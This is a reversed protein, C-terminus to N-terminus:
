SINKLKMMDNEAKQIEAQCGKVIIWYIKIEKHLRRLEHKAFALNRVKDDLKMEESRESQRSVAGLVLRGSNKARLRRQEAGRRM